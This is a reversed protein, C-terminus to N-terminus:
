SASDEFTVTWGDNIDIYRIWDADTWNATSTPPVEFKYYGAWYAEQKTVRRIDNLRECCAKISPEHISGCEDAPSIWGQKLYVWRGQIERGLSDTFCGDWETHTSEVAPHNIIDQLTRAKAM